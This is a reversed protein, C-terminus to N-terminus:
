RVGLLRWLSDMATVDMGVKREERTGEKCKEWRLERSAPPRM